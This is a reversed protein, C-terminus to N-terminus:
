REEPSLAEQLLSRRRRTVLSVMREPDIRLFMCLVALLCAAKKTLMGWNFWLHLPESKLGRLFAARAAVTENQACRRRGEVWFSRVTEEAWSRKMSLAFRRSGPGGASNMKDYLYFALKKEQATLEVMHVLSQSEPHRRYFGLRHPSGFFPGLRSLELFTPYDTLQLGPVHQFGKIRRLAERDIVATVPHIFGPRQLLPLTCSGRYNKFYRRFSRPLGRQVDAIVEGDPALLLCTGFCVVAQEHLCSERQRALKDPPWADDGEVIAIWKGSSAELGQNYSRDLASIGWRSDHRILTIRPEHRMYSQVLAATRDQSADDIVIMEWDAVTQALVSKICASIYREHNYAPTLISFFPLRSM